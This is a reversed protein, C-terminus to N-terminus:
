VIGDNFYGLFLIAADEDNRDDDYAFMLDLGDLSYRKSILEINKFRDPLMYKDCEEFTLKYSLYSVFQIKKPQKDVEAEKGLIIINTSM